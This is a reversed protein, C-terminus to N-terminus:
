KKPVIARGKADIRGQEALLNMARYVAAASPAGTMGALTTLKRTKGPTQCLAEYVSEALKTDDGKPPKPPKPDKPEDDTEESTDPDTADDADDEDEDEDDDDDAEEGDPGIYSDLDPDFDERTPDTGGEDADLKSRGPKPLAITDHEDLMDYDNARRYALIGDELQRLTLTGSTVLQQLVDAVSDPTYANYEHLLRSMGPEARKLCKLLKDYMPTGREFPFIPLDDDDVFQLADYAKGKGQPVVIEHVFVDGEMFEDPMDQLPGRRPRKDINEVDKTLVYLKRVMTM